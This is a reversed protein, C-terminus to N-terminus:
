NGLPRFNFQLSAGFRRYYAGGVDTEARTWALRVAGDLNSALPRGVQLYAVSANDAEEGPVLRPFAVEHLYSKSTFLVYVNLSFDQPLPATLLARVSLADYEPRYSNSRNLTGDLGVQAFVDGPYTWELGVRTTRDRRFPDPPYFSGQNEYESWRLGGYFRITAPAGWRAGVEFGVAHRDLLDYQPLYDVASYDASEVDGQADFSVGGFSRTALGLGGQRTAYGPQLYLPMPPRDVIHRGRILGRASLVGWTGLTETFRASVSGVWERPAYDRDANFGTAGTQRVGGDFSAELSRRPTGFLSLVGRVGLEGVVASVHDASDAVPIGQESLTGAYGDASGGLNFVLDRLRVQAHIGTPMLFSAAASM